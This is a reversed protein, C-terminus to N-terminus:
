NRRGRNNKQKNNNNFSVKRQSQYQQQEGSGAAGSQPARSFNSNMNTNTYNVKPQVNSKGKSNNKNFNKPGTKEQTSRNAQVIRLQADRTIATQLNETTTKVSAEDFLAVSSVSSSRLDLKDQEPIQKPLKNLIPERRKLLVNGLNNTAEKQIQSTTKGASLLLRLAKSLGPTPTSDCVSQLIKVASAIQWDLASTLVRTKRASTELNKVDEVSFDPKAKRLNDRDRSPVIDEISRNISAPQLNDITQVKYYRYNFEPAPISKGMRLPGLNAKRNRSTGAMISDTDLAADVCGKSWPLSPLATSTKSQSFLSEVLSGSSKSPPIKEVTDPFQEQIWGLVDLYTTDQAESSSVFEPITEEPQSDMHVVRTDVPLFFQDTNEVNQEETDVEMVNQEVPLDLDQNDALDQNDTIVNHETVINVTKTPKELNYEQRFRSDKAATSEQGRDSDIRDISSEQCDIGFNELFVTETNHKETNRPQNDNYVYQNGRYRRRSSHYSMSPSSHRVSRSDREYYRSSYSRSPSRDSRYRNPSNHRDKDTNHRYKTSGRNPSSYRIPSDTRERRDTRRYDSYSRDPSRHKVPSRSRDASSRHLNRPERSYSSHRDQRSYTSSDHRDPFRPSDEQRKKKPIRPLEEVPARVPSTLIKDKTSTKKQEIVPSTEKESPILSLVDEEVHIAVFDSDDFETPGAPLRNVTVQQLDQQNRPKELTVPGDTTSLAVSQVSPPEKFLSSGRTSASKTTVPSAPPLMRTTFDILQQFNRQNEERLVAIQSSFEERLASTRPTDPVISKKSSSSQPTECVSSQESGISAKNNKKTKPKPTAQLSLNPMSMSSGSESSSASMKKEKREQYTNKRSLYKAWQISTWNVCVECTRERTCTQGRCAICLVHSDIELNSMFKNCNKGDKGSCKRQAPM